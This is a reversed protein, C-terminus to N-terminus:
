KGYSSGAGVAVATVDPVDPPFALDVFARALSALHLRSISSRKASTVAADRSARVEDTARLEGDDRSRAPSGRKRRSTHRSPLSSM